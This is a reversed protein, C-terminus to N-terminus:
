VDEGIMSRIKRVLNIAEINGYSIYEYELLRYLIKIENYNLYTTEVSKTSEKPKKRKKKKM